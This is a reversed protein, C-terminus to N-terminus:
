KTYSRVINCNNNTYVPRRSLIKLGDIQKLRFNTIRRGDPSYHKYFYVGVVQVSPFKAKLAEVIVNLTEGSAMFDDVVIARIPEVNPASAVPSTDHSSAGKKNIIVLEKNMLYALPAGFALGSRGRCVITDFKVKSLQQIAEHIIVVRSKKDLITHFYNAV